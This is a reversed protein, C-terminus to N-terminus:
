EEPPAIRFEPSFRSGRGLHSEVAISAGMADLLNKTLTLGIGLGEYNRSLRSDAQFFGDFIKKLHNKSIGIGNDQIDICLSEGRIRFSVAVQGENPSFKVANDMLHFLVRELAKPNAMIMPIPGDVRPQIDVQKARGRQEVRAIAAMVASLPDVPELSLMPGPGCSAEAVELLDNVMSALRNSHRHIRSLLERQHDSIPGARDSLLVQTFGTISTLPTRLEHSITSLFNSKMAEIEQLQAYAEELDGYLEGNELAASDQSVFWEFLTRKANPISGGGSFPMDAILLGYLGKKTRLAMAIAPPRILNRGLPPNLAANRPWEVSKPSEAIQRLLANERAGADDMSLPRIERFRADLPNSDAFSQITDIWFAHSALDEFGRTLPDEVSAPGHGNFREVNDSIWRSESRIAERIADHSKKNEAGMAGGALFAKHGEDYALLFARDFGLGAESAVTALIIQRLDDLQITAGLAIHLRHILGLQQRLRDAILADSASAPADPPAAFPETNPM